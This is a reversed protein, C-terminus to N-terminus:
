PNLREGRQLKQHQLEKQLTSSLGAGASQRGDNTQVFTPQLHKKLCLKVKFLHGMSIRLYRAGGNNLSPEEDCASKYLVVLMSKGKLASKKHSNENNPRSLVPVLETSVAEM